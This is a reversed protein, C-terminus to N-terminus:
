NQLFRLLVAPLFHYRYYELTLLSQSAVILTIFSRGEM